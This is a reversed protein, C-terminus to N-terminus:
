KELESCHGRQHRFAALWVLSVAALLDDDEVTVEEIASLCSRVTALLKVNLVGGNGDGDSPLLRRVLTDVTHLRKELSFNNSSEM